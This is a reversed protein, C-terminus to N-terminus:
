VASEQPLHQPAFRFSDCKIAALPAFEWVFDRFCAGRGATTVNMCASSPLRPDSLRSGLRQRYGQFVQCDIGSTTQSLLYKKFTAAAIDMAVGLLAVSPLLSRLPPVSSPLAQCTVWPLVALPTLSAKARHYIFGSERGAGFRRTDRQVLGNVFVVFAALLFIPPTLVLVLVFFQVLFTLVTYAAAILYAQVHV